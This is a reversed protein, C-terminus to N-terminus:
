YDRNVNSSLEWNILKAIMNIAKIIVIIPIFLALGFIVALEDWMSFGEAPLGKIRFRLADFMNGWANGIMIARIYAIIVRSKKEGYADKLCLVSEPNPKGASEAYHQAFYLAALEDQPAGKFDGDLVRKIEDKNLGAKLSIQTHFWSCYRCGNVETVALMIRELFKKSIRDNSHVCFFDGTSSILDSILRFFDKPKYLRKLFRKVTM